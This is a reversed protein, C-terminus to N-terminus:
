KAAEEGACPVDGPDASSQVALTQFPGKDEGMDSETNKM